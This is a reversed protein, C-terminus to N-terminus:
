DNVVFNETKDGSENLVVEFDWSKIVEGDQDLKEIALKQAGMLRTSLSYGGAATVVSINRGRKFRVQLGAGPAGNYTVTGSLTKLDGVTIYVVGWERCNERRSEDTEENYFTELEDWVKKIVKDAEDLIGELAEQANDLADKRNSQLDFGTKFTNKAMNVEAADPNSMPAGGAAVRLADGNVINNAWLLLDSDKSLDPLPSDEVPLDYSTRDAAPYKGRAVGFNFVQIFHSIFLRLMNGATDKVPTGNSYVQKASIIANRKSDYDTFMNTLRTDTASTFPNQSGPPLNDRKNKALALAEYRDIITQPFDRSISSM